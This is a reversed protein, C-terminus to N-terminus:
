EHRKHADDEHAASESNGRPADQNVTHHHCFGLSANVEGQPRGIVHEAGAEGLGLLSGGRHRLTHGSVEGGAVSHVVIPEVFPVIQQVHYLGATPDHRSSTAVCCAL